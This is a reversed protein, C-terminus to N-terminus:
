TGDKFMKRSANSLIQINKKKEKVMEYDSTELNSQCLIKNMIIYLYKDTFSGTPSFFSLFIKTHGPESTCAIGSMKRM